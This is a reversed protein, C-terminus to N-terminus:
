FYLPSLFYFSAVKNRTYVEKRPRPALSHAQLVSMRERASAAHSFAASRLNFSICFWDIVDTM